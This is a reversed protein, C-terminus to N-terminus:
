SRRTRCPPRARRGSGRPARRLHGVRSRDGCRRLLEGERAEAAVRHARDPEVAQEGGAALLARHRRRADRLHDGREHDELIMRDRRAFAPGLDRVGVGVDVDVPVHDRLVARHCGHAGPRREGQALAELRHQERRAVVVRDRDRVPRVPRDVREELPGAGPEVGVPEDFVRMASELPRDSSLTLM